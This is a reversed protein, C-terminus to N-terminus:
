GGNGTTPAAAPGDNAVGPQVYVQGGPVDSGQEVHTILADVSPQIRDLLPQPHLGVFVILALLPAIVLVQTWRRGGVDGYGEDPDSHLGGRGARTTHACGFPSSM